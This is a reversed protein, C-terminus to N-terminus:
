LKATVFYFVEPLLFFKFLIEMMKNTVEFSIKGGTESAFLTLKVPIWYSVNACKIHFDFFQFRCGSLFNNGLYVCMGGCWFKSVCVFTFAIQSVHCFVDAFFLHFLKENEEWLFLLLFIAFNCFCIPFKASSFIWVLVYISFRYWSKTLSLYFYVHCCLPHLSPFFINKEPYRM